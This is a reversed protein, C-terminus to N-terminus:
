DVIPLIFTWEDPLLAAGICLCSIQVVLMWNKLWIEIASIFFLFSVANGFFKFGALSDLELEKQKM